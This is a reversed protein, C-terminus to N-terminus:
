GEGKVTGPPPPDTRTYGRALQYRSRQETEDPHGGVEKMLRRHMSELRARHEPRRALNTFENPDLKLNYLEQEAPHDKDIVTHYTYKWEGSRAMVYGSATNHAYYESVSYDKWVHRPNDLWPLM